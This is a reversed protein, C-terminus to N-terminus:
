KRGAKKASKDLERRLSKSSARLSRAAAPSPYYRAVMAPTKYGVVRMAQQMPLRECIRSIAEHRLDHFKLDPIGADQCARRFVRILEARSVPFWPALLSAPRPLAQLIEVARTSLPVARTRDTDANRVHAIRRGLDVDRPALALLELQYMASELALEALPAFYVGCGKLQKLLRQEEDGELRRRRASTALTAM